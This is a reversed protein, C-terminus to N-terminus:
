EQMAASAAAAERGVVIWDGLGCGGGSDRCGDGQVGEATGAGTGCGDSPEEFDRAIREVFPPATVSTAGEVDVVGGREGGREDGTAGDDTEDCCGM